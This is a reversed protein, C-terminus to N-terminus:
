DLLQMATEHVFPKKDAMSLKSFTSCIKKTHTCHFGEYLGGHRSSVGEIFAVKSLGLHM